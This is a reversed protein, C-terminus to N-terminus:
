TYSDGAIQHRPIMHQAHTRVVQSQRNDEQWLDLGSVGLVVAMRQLQQLFLAPCCRELQCLFNIFVKTYTIPQPTTLTHAWRVEQLRKELNM